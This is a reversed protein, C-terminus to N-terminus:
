QALQVEPQVLLELGSYKCSSSKAANKIRSKRARLGGGRLYLEAESRLIRVYGGVREAPLGRKLWRKVTSRSIQLLAAYQEITLRNPDASLPPPQM